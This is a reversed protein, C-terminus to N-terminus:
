AAKNCAPKQFIRGTAAPRGMDSEDLGKPLEIKIFDAGLRGTAPATPVQACRRDPDLVNFRRAGALRSTFSM